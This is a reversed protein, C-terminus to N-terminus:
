QICRPPDVMNPYFLSLWTEVPYIRKFDIVDNVARKIKAVDQTRAGAETVGVRVPVGLGVGISSIIWEVAVGPSAAGAVM